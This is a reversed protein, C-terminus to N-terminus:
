PLQPAIAVGSRAASSTRSLLLLQCALQAVSAILFASALGEARYRPILLMGAFLAVAAWTLEFLLALWMRDMSAVARALAQGVANIGAGTCAIALVWVGGTFGPGYWGLIWKSAASVPLVVAAACVANLAVASKAVTRFRSATDKVYISTLIPLLTSAVVSPVFLIAVRWQNAVNFIGMAAYGDPQNVLMTTCWWAAPGVVAGGLVSPLSFRLLVPWESIWGKPFLYMNRALLEKRVAQLNLVWTIVSSLVLGWVAGLVGGFYAAIVVFPITLASSIVSIRALARFAECGLLCGTQSAMLSTVLVLVAAVRLPGALAPAALTKDALWPSCLMLGVMMVSGCLLATAESLLIIRAARPPDTQQFEAVFRAATQSLGVGGLAGFAGVTGQIMGVQGFASQGLTRALVISAVLGLIRSIVAGGLSWSIGRLMRTRLPSSVVKRIESNWRNRHGALALVMGAGCARQLTKPM